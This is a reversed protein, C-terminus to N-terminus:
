KRGDKGRKNELYRSGTEIARRYQRLHRIATKAREQAAKEEHRRGHRGAVIAAGIARSAYTELEQHYSKWERLIAPTLNSLRFPRDLIAVTKKEYTGARRAAAIPAAVGSKGYEAKRKQWAKRM